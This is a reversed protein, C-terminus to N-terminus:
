EEQEKQIEKNEKKLWFWANLCGVVLGAFMLMMTWSYKDAFEKDLWYGVGTGVLTPIVVSWGILGIMGLGFWASKKGSRQSKLKRNEKEGVKGGFGKEAM